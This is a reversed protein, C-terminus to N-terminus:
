EYHFYDDDIFEDDSSESEDDYESQYYEDESYYEDDNNNYHNVFEDIHESYDSEYNEDYEFYFESNNFYNNQIDYNIKTEELNIQPKNIDKPINFIPMPLPYKKILDLLKPFLYIPRLGCLELQIDLRNKMCESISTYNKSVDVFKELLQTESLNKLEM